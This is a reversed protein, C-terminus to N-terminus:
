GSETVARRIAWRERPLLAGVFPTSQRLACMRETDAVLQAQLEDLPLSLLQRWQAAYAPHMAGTSAWEEVRARARDVLHPDRAIKDAIAAHMAISRAEALRHIEV